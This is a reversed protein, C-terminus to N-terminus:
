PAVFIGERKPLREMLASVGTRADFQETMVGQVVTAIPLEIGRQSALGLALDTTTVGEAVQGIEELITALRKGQGLGFGVRYNRSLRSNATAFLDGVGAVGLFTDLRAGLALGLRAMEYLGRALLAGKTNDGFGLGDSVGAAIAYVNKLAGSLEVGAVDDSVYIRFTRGMLCARVEEAASEDQSAVVALTPVGKALEHALNPGSLVVVSAGPVSDAVVQALLGDGGRALGKSAVVVTRAGQCLGLASPFVSSPVAVVVVGPEPRAEELREFRTEPPLVFGPLYKLNERCQRLRDFGESQRGVLRVRHGNRALVLALATGWSGAGVVTVDMPRMKALVASGRAREAM